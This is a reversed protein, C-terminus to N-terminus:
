GNGYSAGTVEFMGFSGDKEPRWEGVGISFGAVTFLNMITGENLMRANYKVRLVTSWNRMEARFRIDATGMAIRVMDERMHLSEFQIPVIDGQHTPIGNTLHLAGRITKKTISDVFSFASAAAAKFGVIPFGVTFGECEAATLVREDNFKKGLKDRFDMPNGRIFYMSDIADQLPDKPAKKQKTGSAGTQKDLMMSKAKESWAHVIMPSTGSLHLDFEKIVMGEISITEVKAPPISTTEDVSITASGNKSGM